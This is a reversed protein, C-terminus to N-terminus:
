LKMWYEYLEIDKQFLKKIRQKSEENFRYKIKFDSSSENIKLATDINKTCINLYNLMPVFYEFSIMLNVENKYYDLTQFPHFNLLEEDSLEQIINDLNDKDMINLLTLIRKLNENQPLNINKLRYRLMSEFRDIPHRIIAFCPRDKRKAREHNQKYLFPKDSIFQRVFTGGCKPIHIFTIKKGRALQKKFNNLIQRKRKSFLHEDINVNSMIFSDTTQFSHSENNFFYQLIILLCLIYSFIWSFYQFNKEKMFLNTFSLCVHIFAYIIIYQLSKM